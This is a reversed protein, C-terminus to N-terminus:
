PLQYRWVALTPIPPYRLRFRFGHFEQLNWGMRDIVSRIMRGYQPIETTLTDPPCGGLAIVPESVDLLGRERGAAPYMPGSPLQSYLLIQPSLAYTLDRHVFLDHILVEVPTYLRAYHEGITDDKARTRRVFNRGYLGIICTAAATNGVPGEVLEYRTVGDRGTEIRIEPAPTSCFEGLLPAKNSDDFAPDIARIEGVPLPSGDDTVKRAAAMAWTAERKLRRFDILGSLWALDAMERHSGPAIVNTCLQARAQVGWTASNGRFSLKRHSEDREQQGHDTLNGLMMELTERDGSHVEVMREFDTIANRVSQILEPPAEAKAFADILINLGARRPILPIAAFPNEAGILRCLKWTLSKDLRLQRSVEQPRTSDAGIAVLLESFAARVRQIVDRVHAEFPPTAAAKRSATDQRRPMKLVWRHGTVRQPVISVVQQM